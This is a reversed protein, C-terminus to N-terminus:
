FCVMYKETKIILLIPFLKSISTKRLLNVGNTQLQTHNTRVPVQPM